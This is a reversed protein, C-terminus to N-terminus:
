NRLKNINDDSYYESIYNDLYEKKDIKLDLTNSINIISNILDKDDKFCYDNILNSFIETPNSYYRNFIDNMFELKKINIISSDIISVNKDINLLYHYKKVIYLSYSDFTTIFSADILDLQRDLKNAIIKDRIRGKMEKAAEKTFTLILLRDIDVGDKLKRIVRESLVATKGSGAGASVIISTNDMDIATQQDSTFKPM